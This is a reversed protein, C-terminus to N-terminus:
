VGGRKLRLEEALEGMCVRGGVPLGEESVVLGITIQVGDVRTGEKMVIQRIQFLQKLRTISNLIAGYYM